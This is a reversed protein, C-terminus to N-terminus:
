KSANAQGTNEAKGYTRDIIGVPDVPTKKPMVWGSESVSGRTLYKVKVRVIILYHERSFRDAVSLDTTYEPVIRGSRVQEKAIEASVPLVEVDGGEIGGATKFSVINEAQPGITGRCLVVETEGAAADGSQYKKYISQVNEESTPYLDESLSALIDELLPSDDTIDLLEEDYGTDGERLESYPKDIHRILGGGKLGSAQYFRGDSSRYFTMASNKGSDSYTAQYTESGPEKTLVLERDGYKITNPAESSLPPYSAQKRYCGGAMSTVHEFLGDLVKGALNPETTPAPHDEPLAREYKQLEKVPLFDNEGESNGNKIRYDGSTVALRSSLLLGTVAINKISRDMKHITVPQLHNRSHSSLFIQKQIEKGEFIIQETSKPPVTVSDVNFLEHEGSMTVQSFCSSTHAIAAPDIEKYIVNAYVNAVEGSANLHDHLIHKLFLDLLLKKSTIGNVCNHFDPPIPYGNQDFPLSLCGRGGDINEYSYNLSIKVECKNTDVDDNISREVKYNVLRRFTASNSYYFDLTSQIEECIIEHTPEFFFEYINLSNKKEDKAMEDLKIYEEPLNSIQEHFIDDQYLGDLMSLYPITDWSRIAQIQVTQQSERTSIDSVTIRM